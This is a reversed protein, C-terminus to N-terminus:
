FLYPKQPKKHNKITKQTAFGTFVKRIFQWHMKATVRICPTTALWKELMFCLVISTGNAIIKFLKNGGGFVYEEM